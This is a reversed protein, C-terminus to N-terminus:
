LRLPRAAVGYTPCTCRICTNVRSKANLEWCVALAVSRQNSDSRRLRGALHGAGRGRERGGRKGPSKAAEPPPVRELGVATFFWPYLPEAETSRQYDSRWAESQLQIGDPM